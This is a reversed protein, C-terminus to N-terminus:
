SAKLGRFAASTGAILAFTESFHPARAVVAKVLTHGNQAPPPEAVASPSRPCDRQSFVFEHYM